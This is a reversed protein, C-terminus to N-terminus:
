CPEPAGRASHSRHTDDRETCAVGCQLVVLRRYSQQATVTTSADLIEPKHSVCPLGPQISGKRKGGQGGSRYM